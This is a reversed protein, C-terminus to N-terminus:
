HVKTLICGTIEVFLRGSKEELYLMNKGFYFVELICDNKGFEM